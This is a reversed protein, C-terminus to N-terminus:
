ILVCINFVYVNSKVSLQYNVFHISYKKRHLILKQVSAMKNIELKEYFRLNMREILNFNNICRCFIHYCGANGYLKRTKRTVVATAFSNFVSDLIQFDGRRFFIRVITEKTRDILRDGFRSVSLARKCARARVYTRVSATTSELAKVYASYRM